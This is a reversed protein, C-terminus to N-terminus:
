APRDALRIGEVMPRDSQRSPHNDRAGHKAFRAALSLRTL